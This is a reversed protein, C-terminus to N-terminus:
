ERAYDVPRSPKKSIKSVYLMRADLIFSNLSPTSFSSSVSRVPMKKRESFRLTQIIIFFQSYYILSIARSCGTYAESNTCV